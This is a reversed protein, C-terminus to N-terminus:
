QTNSYHRNDLTASMINTCGSFMRHVAGCKAKQSQSLLDIWLFTYLSRVWPGSDARHRVLMLPSLYHLSSCASSRINRKEEKQPTVYTFHFVEKEPRQPTLIKCLEAKGPPINGNGTEGLCNTVTSFHWVCMKLGAVSQSGLGRFSNLAAKFGKVLVNRTPSIKHTFSVVDSYQNCSKLFVLTHIFFFTCFSM